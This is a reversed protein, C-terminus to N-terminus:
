RATVRSSGAAFETVAGVIAAASYGAQRLERLCADARDAPLGALLGGATQPDVLLPLLEPAESSPEHPIAQLARANQSHLSSLIGQRV